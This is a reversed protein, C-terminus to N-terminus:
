KGGADFLKKLIRSASNTNTIFAEVYFLRGKGNVIQKAETFPRMGCSRWSEWVIFGADAPIVGMYKDDNVKTCRHSYSLSHNNFEEIIKAM